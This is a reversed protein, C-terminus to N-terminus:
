DQILKPVVYKSYFLNVKDLVSTWLQPDFTIREVHLKHKETKISGELYLVFDCWQLNSIAMQSQIQIYWNSTKKLEIVGDSTKTLHYKKESIEDLTLNKFTYPCKIEVIGKGCCKCNVIADPSAGLHPIDKNIILGSLEVVAKEHQSTYEKSYLDRALHEREKGYIIAPTSFNNNKDLIQRVIYNNKDNGQYHYVLPIISSTIRGLRYEYWNQNDSQGETLSYIQDCDDQNVKSKLYELFSSNELFDEASEIISKPMTLSDESKDLVEIIQTDHGQILNHLGAEFEVDAMNDDHNIPDYVHEFPQVRPNVSHEISDLKMPVSVKRPIDWGCKTDTCTETNRDIHRDSWNALCFLLAVVHKCGGDDATCHCGASICVGESNVLCWTMYPDAKQSTERICSAKIYFHEHPLKFIEASSIHNSKSLRFGRENKYTKLRSPTWKAFSVLYAFVDAMSFVPVSKLDDTWGKQECQFVTPFTVKEGNLVVTSRFQLFSDTDDPTSIVPLDLEVAKFALERLQQISYDSVTMGREMLFTRLAPKLM